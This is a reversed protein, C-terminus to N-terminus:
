LLGGDIIAADNELTGYHSSLNLSNGPAAVLSVPISLTDTTVAVSVSDDSLTVAISPSTAISVTIETM